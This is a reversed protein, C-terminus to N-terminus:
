RRRGGGGRMGGGRSGGYSGTGRYSTGSSRGGQYSSYDRTRQQGESRARSDRDLQDMNAPRDASGWNGNGDAKQWSDGSKKYVNGDRGAYVDGSGTRAVTGGGGPGRNSVATGGGSGQTVRTTNGTRSNTVRSTNAWQDGRQVSTSGWSGYVNSGQRTQGYTGTRPNYAQGAGRAGYPGWAAAGRSYTGTRPNYRASVGAGGYPGYAVASRGYAGTWPNYYGGYGYSPYHPYYYPYGGGWGYYPPYYWGTGWVACGWAIMVGTYAAATAFTAWEDNDDQATVYTVHNVPSSVPIEYIQGPVSGTVEWPGTPSKAMFWVGQFCMYYMDGVKIIDKDTNVARSVSTKEIPEFKAEGQYAVEPAKLEKKHVRATQPVQALLVAEAAQQTGPVSALVRSRPHELSIKQFDEPLTPTAFTWPGEFGPASFWRGSVLYYVTGKEGLRFVDSETNSVWVLKTGAVPSYIPGNKVLILEAPKTSVFVNPVDKASLSKGPLAAKVEKWNDDAPLKSFSEPLKGATTWPGEVKAAKLWASDNRLYLAQTPGHQFLDWNTNVAFKLDNNAIPSWIPDGDLNVLLAAKTSYFIPPPDAKVGEVNKPVIQSKDVSALVRDLAIVREEDPIAKEIETVVERVQEKPLNPFNSETIKLQKFSVLRKEVSVTTDSELKLSGLAPKSIGKPQYAVATYATLHKQGDWSAVQPQYVVIKGASPTEYTRPWGGDIPPAPAAATGTAPAAAAAAPAAAATRAQAPALSAPPGAPGGKAGAAPPPAAQPPAAVLPAAPTLALCFATFLAVPGRGAEFQRLM